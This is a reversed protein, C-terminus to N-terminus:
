RGEITPDGGRDLTRWPDEATRAVAPADYRRGLGTSWHRCRLAAFVGSVMSLISGVLGIAPWAPERHATVVVGGTRASGGLLDTLRAQAPMTFGRTAFWAGAVSVAIVLVGVCLRTIRGAVVLVLAGLLIVVAFGSTAAFVVRGPVHATLATFPQIRVAHLVLWPRSAALFYM